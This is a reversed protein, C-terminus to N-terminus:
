APNGTKERTLLQMLPERREHPVVISEAPQKQPHIAFYSTGCGGLCDYWVFSLPAQVDQTAFGTLERFDRLSDKSLHGRRIARYWVHCQHCYPWQLLRRVVLLAVCTLVAGEVLWLGWVALGTLRIGAIERGFRAESSLYRPFSEPAILGLEEAKGPFAAEALALKEPSVHEAKQCARVYSSYHQLSILFLMGLLTGVLVFGSKSVNTWRLAMGWWLGAILGVIASFLFLPAFIVQIFPTIWGLLASGLFGTLVFLLSM